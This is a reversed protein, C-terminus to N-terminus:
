KTGSTGALSIELFIGITILFTWLLVKQLISLLLPALAGVLDGFVQRPENPFISNSHEHRQREKACFQDNEFNVYMVMGFIMSWYFYYLM